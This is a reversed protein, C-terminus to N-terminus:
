NEEAASVEFIGPSGFKPNLFYWSDFSNSSCYAERVRSSIARYGFVKAPDSQRQLRSSHSPAALFLQCESRKKFPQCKQSEQAPDSVRDSGRPTYTGDFRSIRFQLDDVCKGTSLM